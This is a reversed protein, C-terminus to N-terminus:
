QAPPYDSVVLRIPTLNYGNVPSHDHACASAAGVIDMLVRLVIRDGPKTVPEAVTYNGEADIRTNQFINFPEPTAWREIGFAALAGSLNDLCNPHDTIGYTQEYRAPDCAAITIDHQGVKDEVIEIIPRRLNTVLTDGDGVYIRLLNSRTHCTSLREQHDEANLAVFDCVQKGELDIITIYQGARATFPRGSAPPILIDQPRSHSAETAM